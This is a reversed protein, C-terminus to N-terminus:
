DIPAKLISHGDALFLRTMTLRLGLPVHLYVPSAAPRPVVAFVHISSCTARRKKLLDKWLIDYHVSFSAEM